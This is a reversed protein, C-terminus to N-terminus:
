LDLPMETDTDSISSVDHENLDTLDITMTETFTNGASDTVQIAIQHTPATEFDLDAGDKVRIEDGVIEFHGSPDSVIEYTHTDNENADLTSLTAIVTGGSANEVVESNSYNIDVPAVNVESAEEPGTSAGSTSNSGQQSNAGATDEEQNFSNLEPALPAGSVSQVADVEDISPVDQIQASRSQSSSSNTAPTNTESPNADSATNNYASNQEIPADAYAPPVAQTGVESELPKENIHELDAGIDDQGPLVIDMREIPTEGGLDLNDTDVKNKKAAGTKGSSQEVKSM